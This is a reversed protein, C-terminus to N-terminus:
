DPHGSQGAPPTARDPRLIAFALAAAALLAASMTLSLVKGVEMWISSAASVVWEARQPDHVSANPIGRGASQVHAVRLMDRSQQATVGEDALKRGGMLGFLAVGLLPFLASGFAYATSQVNSRVASVVGGFSPPASTMLVTTLTTQVVAGAIAGAAMVVAVGFIGTHENTALRFAMAAALLVLGGVMVASEGVRTAVRGAGIATLAALLTGPIYMLHLSTAPLGRVIVVYATLLAASGGMTFAYM